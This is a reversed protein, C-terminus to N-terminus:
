PAREIASEATGPTSTDVKVQASADPPPEPAPLRDVDIFDRMSDTLKAPRRPTPAGDAGPAARGPPKLSGRGSARNGSLSCQTHTDPHLHTSELLAAMIPTLRDALVTGDPLLLLDTVLHTANPETTKM